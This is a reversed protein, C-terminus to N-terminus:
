ISTTIETEERALKLCAARASPRVTRAGLASASALPLSAPIPRPALARWGGAATPLTHSCGEEGVGRRCCFCGREFQYPKFPGRPVVVSAADSCVQLLFCHM